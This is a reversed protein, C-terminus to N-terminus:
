QSARLADTARQRQIVHALQATLSPVVEMFIDDCPRVQESFVEILAAVTGDVVVPMGFACRIGLPRLLATRGVLRLAQINAIWLPQQTAVIHGVFQGRSTYYDLQDAQAIFHEFRARDATDWLSHLPLGCTESRFTVVHGITWDGYACIHSLCAQLADTPNESTNAAAVTAALMQPLMSKRLLAENAARLASIDRMVAVVGTIEGAHDKIPSASVSVPIETNDKRLWTTEFPLVREGRRLQDFNSRMQKQRNPPILMFVNSAVAEAATYGLLRQAGLNWSLITGEQTSSLIADDSAEVIAALRQMEALAQKERVRLHKQRVVSSVAPGLRALRGKLLYDAAGDRMCQTALEEGITGSVLIFPIDLKSAKLLELAQKGDFRPLQYDCLIVDLEPDLAALYDTDTAVIQARLEFGARRLEALVIQAHNANDEVLLLNLAQTM